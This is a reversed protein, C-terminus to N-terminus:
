VQMEQENKTATFLDVQVQQMSQRFRNSQDKLLAELQGIVADRDQVYDRLQNVEFCASEQGLGLTPNSMRFGATSISMRHEKGLEKGFSDKTMDFSDDGLHDGFGYTAKGFKPGRHQPSAEQSLDMVSDNLGCEPVDLDGFLTSNMM